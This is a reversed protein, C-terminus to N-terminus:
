IRTATFRVLGGRGNEQKENMSKGITQKEIYLSEIIVLPLLNKESTLIRTKYTQIEGNHVDVDHRHLPNSQIKSKQGQLHNKMRWHASTRTMGIYNFVKCDSPRRTPPTDHNSELNCKNCTIEYIISQKACDKEEEVICDKDKFRCGKEKFPDTKRLSVIVPLGGDETVLIRKKKPDNNINEKVKRALIGGPTPQVTIVSDINGKLYWSSATHGGKKMNQKLIEARTRNLSEIEGENVKKRMEEICMVIGRIANFREISSYGSMRM